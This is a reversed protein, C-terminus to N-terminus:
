LRCTWSSTKVSIQDSRYFFCWTLSLQLPQKKHTSRHHNNRQLVCTRGCTLTFVCVAPSLSLMRRATYAQWDHPHIFFLTVLSETLSCSTTPPTKTSSSSSLGSRRNLPQWVLLIETKIQAHSPRCGTLLQDPKQEQWCQLSTGAASSSVFWRWCLAENFLILVCVNLWSVFHESETQHWLLSIVRYGGVPVHKLEVCEPLFLSCSCTWTKCEPHSLLMSLSIDDM